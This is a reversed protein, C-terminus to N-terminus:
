VTGVAPDKLISQIADVDLPDNYDNVDDNLPEVNSMEEEEEEDTPKVMAPAPAPAPAHVGPNYIPRGVRVVGASELDCNVLGPHAGRTRMAGTFAGLELALQARTFTLKPGEEMSLVIPEEASARALANVVQQLSLVVEKNVSLLRFRSEGLVTAKSVGSVVLGAFEGFVCLKGVVLYEISKAPALEDRHVRDLPSGEEERLAARMAEFSEFTKPFDVVNTRYVRCVNGDMWGYARPRMHTNRELLFQGDLLRYSPLDHRDVSAVVDEIPVVSWSELNSVYMGVLQDNEDIAPAGNLDPFVGDLTLSASQKFASISYGYVRVAPGREDADVIDLTKQDSFRRPMGLIALDLQPVALVIHAYPNVFCEDTSVVLEEPALAAVNSLATVVYVESKWRIRFGSFCGVSATGAALKERRHGNSHSRQGDCTAFWANAFPSYFKAAFVDSPFSM